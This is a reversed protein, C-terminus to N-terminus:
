IKQPKAINRSLKNCLNESKMPLFSPLVEQTELCLLLQLRAIKPM